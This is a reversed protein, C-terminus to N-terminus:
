FRIIITDPGFQESAKRRADEYDNPATYITGLQRRTKRELVAWRDRQETEM